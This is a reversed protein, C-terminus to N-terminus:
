DVMERMKRRRGENSPRNYAKCAQRLNGRMEGYEDTRQEESKDTHFSGSAAAFASLLCRGGGDVGYRYFQLGAVNLQDAM